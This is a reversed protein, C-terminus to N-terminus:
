PLQSIERELISITWKRAEILSIDRDDGKQRIEAAAPLLTMILKLEDENLGNLYKWLPLSPEPLKKLDEQYKQLFERTGTSASGASFVPRISPFTINNEESDINLRCGSGEIPIVRADLNNAAAEFHKRYGIMPKSIYRIFDGTDERIMSNNHMMFSFFSSELSSYRNELNRFWPYLYTELAYSKGRPYSFDAGVVYIEAAGLSVALSLAAYTVNGGSTDIQPFQRFNRNVYISFPHGSSFYLQNATFRTLRVPSALDLLLPVEDPYGQMFHNYSIDQCDISIVLDPKIERKLLAPLSTDTAILFLDQRIKKIKEINEDLSPGAATIMAKKVSGIKFAAKEAKHLNAVTNRFWKKGFRTQVTFDDGVQELVEHLVDTVDNYYDQHLQVYPRLIVSQIDGTLIPLYQTLIVEGIYEPTEEVLFVLRKDLLLSTLDFECLLSTFYPLDKEIILIKEVTEDNLFPAIHYAGGFGFFILFGRSKYMDPFRAGEKEPDFRSHLPTMRGDIDVAPVKKGTRSEVIHIEKEIKCYACRSSLQKDVTGLALLNREFLANRTM